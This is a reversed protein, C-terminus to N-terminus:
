DPRASRCRRSIRPRVSSIRAPWHRRAGRPPCPKKGHGRPHSELRSLRLGIDSLQGVLCALQHQADIAGLRKSTVVAAARRYIQRLRRLERGAFPMMQCNTNPVTAQREKHIAVIHGVCIGIGLLDAPTSVIPPEAALLLKKMPSSSSNSTALAARLASQNFAAARLWPM